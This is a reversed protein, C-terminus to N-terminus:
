YANPLMGAMMGNNNDYSNCLWDEVPAPNFVKRHKKYRWVRDSRLRLRGEELAREFHNQRLDSIEEVDEDFELLDGLREQKCANAPLGIFDLDIPQMKTTRGAIVTSLCDLEKQSFPALFRAQLRRQPQSKDRKIGRSPESNSRPRTIAPEEEVLDPFPIDFLEATTDRSECCSYSRSREVRQKARAQMMLAPPIEAIREDVFRFVGSDEEEDTSEM